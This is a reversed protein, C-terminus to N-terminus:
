RQLVIITALMGMDDHLNCRFAYTGAKVFTVSYSTGFWHPDSGLFGSNLPASGDFTKPNGYPAFNGKPSTPGFTVTHPTMVDGNTFTITQGLHIFIHQPFFRMVSVMDDGIGLTVHQNTSEDHAQEDLKQGDLLMSTTAQKIQHDYDAQSYPYPTGAPRVHIMGIMSPHVLCYYTFDGAVGFTLSYTQGGPMGPMSSMNSMLGSNYYSTGDYVHGGQPQAQLPDNQNFPPRPKRPKLFTVTHIEGARATWVVTDGVNALLTDPLFAMGQIAQDQSQIGAVVQWTRPRPSHQAAVTATLVTALLVILLAIGLILPSRRMTIRTSM